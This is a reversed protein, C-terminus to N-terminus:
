QTNHELDFEVKDAGNNGILTLEDGNSQYFGKLDRERSDSNLTWAFGQTAPDITYRGDINQGNFNLVVHNRIELYLMPGAGFRGSGLAQEIGNITYHRITYAGGYNSPFLGHEYALVSAMIGVIVVAYALRIALTRFGSDGKQDDWLIAKLRPAEPLLLYLAGILLIAAVIMAGTPVGFFYDVMLINISVPLSCLAGLTKTRPSILLVAIVLETLGLIVQYEPSRGYFSWALWFDSVQALPTDYVSEPVRFQAAMLKPTAYILFLTGLVHRVLVPMFAKVRHLFSAKKM